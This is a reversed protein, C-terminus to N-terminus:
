GIEVVSFGLKYKKFNEDPRSVFLVGFLSNQRFSTRVSESPAIKNSVQECVYRVLRHSRRKKMERVLVENTGVGFSTGFSHM